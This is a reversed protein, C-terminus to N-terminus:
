YNIVIQSNGLKRPKYRCLTYQISYILTYLIFRYLYYIYIYLDTIFRCYLLICFRSSIVTCYHISWCGVVMLVELERLLQFFNQFESSPKGVWPVARLMLWRGSPVSGLCRPHGRCIAIKLDWFAGRPRVVQIGKRHQQANGPDEGLAFVSWGFLRCVPDLLM